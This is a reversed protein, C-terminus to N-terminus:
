GGRLTSGFGQKRAQPRCPKAATEILGVVDDPHSVMAVHSAMLDVTNAGTM